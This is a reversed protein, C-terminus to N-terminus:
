TYVHTPCQFQNRKKGRDHDSKDSIRSILTRWLSPFSYNSKLIRLLKKAATSETSGQIMQKAQKEYRKLACFNKINDSETTRIWGQTSNTTQM